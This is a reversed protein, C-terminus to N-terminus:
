NNMHEGITKSLTREFFDVSNSGSILINENVIFAPVSRVKVTSRREIKIDLEQNIEPSFLASSTMNKPLGVEAAVNLLVETNSIDLGQSFYAKILRENLSMQENFREAFHMLLHAKRTNYYKLRKAFDIVIDADKANRVLKTQYERLQDEDWGANRKFYDAIAEGSEGMEPNIEFPVFRFDVDIKLNNIAKRINNYGIPCWSCVIDHVMEIKLKM